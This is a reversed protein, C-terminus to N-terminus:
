VASIRLATLITAEILLCQAIRQLCTEMCIFTHISMSTSPKGPLKQAHLDGCPTLEMMELDGGVRAHEITGGAGPIEIDEARPSEQDEEPCVM